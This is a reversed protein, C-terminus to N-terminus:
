VIVGYYIFLVYGGFGSDVAEFISRTSREYLYGNM